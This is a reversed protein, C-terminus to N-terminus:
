MRECRRCILGPFGAVRASYGGCDGPAAGFERGAAEDPEIWRATSTRLRLEDGVDGMEYRGSGRVRGGRARQQDWSESVAAADGCTARQTTVM